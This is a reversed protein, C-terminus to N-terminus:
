WFIQASGSQFPVYLVYTVVYYLNEISPVSYIWIICATSFM